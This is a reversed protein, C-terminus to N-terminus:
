IIGEVDDDDLTLHMTDEEYTNEKQQRQDPDDNQFEIDDEDVAEDDIFANKVRKLKKDSKVYADEDETEPESEGESSEEDDYEHEEDDLDEEDLEDFETLFLLLKFINIKFFITFGFTFSIFFYGVFSVLMVAMM